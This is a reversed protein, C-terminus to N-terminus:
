FKFGGMADIKNAMEQGLKEIVMNITAKGGELLIELEAPTTGLPIGALSVEIKQFNMNGLNLTVGLMGGCTPQKETAM